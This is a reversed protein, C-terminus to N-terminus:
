GNYRLIENTIIKFEWGKQECFKQATQWKSSNIAYTMAERIFRATKKGTKPLKPPRTASKEKVEFLFTKVGQATQSTVKFDVFYRHVRNDKPSQYPIQIEESSWTLVSPTEDLYKMM